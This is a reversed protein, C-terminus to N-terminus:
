KEMEIQSENLKTSLIPNLGLIKGQRESVMFFLGEAKGMKGCSNAKSEKQEWNQKEKRNVNIRM